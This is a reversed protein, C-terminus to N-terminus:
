VTTVMQETLARLDRFVRLARLVPLESLVLIVRTARLVPLESLVLIV